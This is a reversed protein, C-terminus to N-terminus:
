CLREGRALADELLGKSRQLDPLSQDKVSNGVTQWLDRWVAQKNAYDGYCAYAVRGALADIEKRLSKERRHRPQPRELTAVQAPPTAGSAAAQTAYHTPIGRSDFFSTWDSVLGGQVDGDQTHVFSLGTAESGLTSYDSEVRERGDGHDRERETASEEALRQPLMRQIEQVIAWLEATPPVFLHATAREGSRVRVFRGVVQNFFMATSVNTAYVGVMLRPIDVGEAIMKVAIIWPDSSRRFREITDRASSNSGGEDEASVVVPAKIGTLDRLRRQVKRAHTKDRAVVLGAADPIERRMSLLDAHARQLVDGFWGGTEDADLLARLADSRDVGKLRRNVTLQESRSELDRVWEVAADIIPFNIPRCVKDAVAQGYDYTYDVKLMGGEDFEVFPMRERADTRWPTGTLLLRRSANGFAFTLSEGYATTDAAHHIEDLIVLTGATDDTGIANRIIGATVGGLAQYTTVIGHYGAKDVPGEVYPRLDVQAATHDSWQTRLADSPVVVIVRRIAHRDLLMRAVTLAWTTKGAGPCAVALFDRKRSGAYRALAEQQWPRLDTMITSSGKQLNCAPCLAQGNSLDREGGKSHPHVHDAHWGSRLKTGCRVCCGGAALYLAARQSRTFFRARRSM